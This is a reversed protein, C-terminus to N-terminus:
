VPAVLSFHQAFKYCYWVCYMQYTTQNNKDLSHYVIFILILEVLKELVSSPVYVTHALFMLLQFYFFKRFRDKGLLIPFTVRNTAMDGEIDRYDQIPNITSQAIWLWWTNVQLGVLYHVVIDEQVLIGICTFLSKVTFGDDFYCHWLILSNWILMSFYLDGPALKELSLFCAAYVLPVLPLTSPYKVFITHPKDVSDQHYGTVRNSIEFVFLYLFSYVVYEFSWIGHYFSVALFSATAAFFNYGFIAFPFMSVRRWTPEPPPQIPKSNMLLYTRWAIAFFGVVVTYPLIARCFPTRTYYAYLLFAIVSHTIFQFRFNFWHTPEPKKPDTTVTAIVGEQFYVKFTLNDQPLPFEELYKHAPCTALGIMQHKKPKESINMWHYKELCQKFSLKEQLAMLYVDVFSTIVTTHMTLHPMSIGFWRAKLFLYGLYLWARIKQNYPGRNLGVLVTKQCAHYFEYNPDNPFWRLYMAKRASEIDDFTQVQHITGLYNKYSGKFNYEKQSILSIDNRLLFSDRILAHLFSVDPVLKNIKSPVNRPRLLVWLWILTGFVTLALNLSM